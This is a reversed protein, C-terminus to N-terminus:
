PGENKDRRRRPRVALSRINRGITRIQEDLRDLAQEVGRPSSNTRRSKESPPQQDTSM